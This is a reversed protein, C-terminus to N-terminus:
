RQTHTHTHVGKWFLPFVIKFSKGWEQVYILERLHKFASLSSGSRGACDFLRILNKTALNEDPDVSNAFITKTKLVSLSLSLCLCSFM